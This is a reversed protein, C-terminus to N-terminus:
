KVRFRLVQGSRGAPDRVHGHRVLRVAGANGIVVQVPGSRYRLAHGPRLMGEFRVRGDVRRVQVWSVGDTARIVLADPHHHARTAGVPAPAPGASTPAPRATPVAAPLTTTTSGSVVLPPQRHVESGGGFAAFASVGGAALVAVTALSPVIWSTPPPPQRHRGVPRGTTTRRHRGAM